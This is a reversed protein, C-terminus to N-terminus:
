ATSCTSALVPVPGEEAPGLPCAYNSDVTLLSSSLTQWWLRLSIPVHIGGVAPIKYNTEESGPLPSAFFCSPFTVQM